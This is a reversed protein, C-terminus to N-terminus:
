ITPTVYVVITRAMLDHVGRRRDDFLVTVFGLFFPLICLGLWLVRVIARSIGVDGEHVTLVRLRMARMGPTQGGLAWFAVFYTATAILWGAATLVTAVAGLEVGGVLQGILALVGALVLLGGQVIAADIGLALARTVIGAYPVRAETLATPPATPPVM